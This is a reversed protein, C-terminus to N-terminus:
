LTAQVTTHPNQDILDLNIQSPLTASINRWLTSEYFGCHHKLYEAKRAVPVDAAHIALPRVPIKSYFGRELARPWFNWEDGLFSMPTASSHWAANLLSQETRDKVDAFDGARKKAMMEGALLFAARHAESRGNVVFLGTNVYRDPPFGLALADNLCFSTLAHRSADPVAWVCATNYFQDIPLPAIAFWDSDFFIATRDGIVDLISFKLDYSDAKDSTLIVVECGAHRRFRRAAEQALDFYGPTAVTVGIIHNM